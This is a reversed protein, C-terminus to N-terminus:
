WGNYLESDLIFSMVLILYMMALFSIGMLINKIKKM